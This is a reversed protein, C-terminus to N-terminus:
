QVYKKLSVVLFVSFEANSIMIHSVDRYVSSERSLPGIIPFTKDDRAVVAVVVKYAECPMNAADGGCHTPDVILGAIIWIAKTAWERCPSISLEGALWPNMHNQERDAENNRPVHTYKGEGQNRSM